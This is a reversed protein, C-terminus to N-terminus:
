QLTNLARLQSVIEPLHKMAYDIDSKSTSRGLSFRIGGKTEEYNKGLAALVHSTQMTKSSCASGISAMIGRADLYLLLAEAEVGAFHVHLNNPLRQEGIAPGTLSVGSIKKQINKWFYEALSRLRASDKVTQKQCIQLAQALGAIGASNETGSRLDFEQGGGLIIAKLLNKHRAYLLGTGKPGYIKSGNITLLDIHLKDVSLDYFSAAQCADTHFLPYVTNHAKRYQLIKRGIEAIPAISGIENNAFMVSVLVTDPTVARMIDEASFLGDAARPRLYTVKWGKQELQQLPHLVAHHEIATSVIHGPKAHALASGTIALNDSETGSATFIINDPNTGLIDAIQARNKALAKAANQGQSHLSSPNGYMNQLFPKMALFVRADMPTAAAHDLYVTKKARVAM